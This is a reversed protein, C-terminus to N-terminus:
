KVYDIEYGSDPCQVIIPGMAIGKPMADAIFSAGGVQRGHADNRFDLFPKFDVWATKSNVTWKGVVQNTGGSNTLVTQVFSHDRNVVLTITVCPSKARYTGVIWRESTVRCGLCSFILPCVLLLERLRMGQM